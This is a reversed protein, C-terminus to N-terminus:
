SRTKLLSLYLNIKDSLMKQSDYINKEPYNNSISIDITKQFLDDDNNLEVLGQKYLKNLIESTGGHDWGMVKAGCSIAEITTRGFPEPKASLNYVIDALKYINQIDSVGGTFTVKSNLRNKSIKDKLENLYGEKNKASPGVILGHFSDDLRELLNIFSEAGKWRTIRGPLVLIKKNIANPFKNLFNSKWSLELPDNNFKRTDCGRHILTINSDHIKYNEQIYSKVCSSIAITHDVKAM